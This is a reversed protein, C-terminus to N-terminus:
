SAGKEQPYILAPDLGVIKAMEVIAPETNFKGNKGIIGVLRSLMEFRVEETM